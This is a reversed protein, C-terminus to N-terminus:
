VAREMVTRVKELDLQDNTRVGSEMDIWLGKAEFPGNTSDDPAGAKPRRASRYLKQVQEVAAAGAYGCRVGRWGKRWNDITELGRGGSRDYLYSLDRSPPADTFLGREQVIIPRGTWDGLKEIARYVYSGLNVQIRDFRGCTTILDDGITTYQGTNAARAYRGCLHIATRLSAKEAIAALAEVTKDGPFRPEYGNPTGYLVAWEIEVGPVSSAIEPLKDLDTWQDIGTITIKTM